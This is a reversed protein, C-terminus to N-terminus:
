QRRKKPHFKKVDSRFTKLTKEDGTEAYRLQIYRHSIMQVQDALDPRALAVRRAFAAPGQAPGRPLGIRALKECFLVYGQQVADKKGTPNKRRWVMFWFGFMGLAGSALLTAFVPGRISGPNLGFRSFFMQQRAYSYGWIWQNWQSNVVDWGFGIKKFYHGLPGFHSFSLFELREDPALAAVMGQEVRAPAVASTPDIRVWGKKPLWVEVWAHADSQRVILYNGFPNWEGGLYGGIIRAPLGATRMLFTFASAYHECYGKRTRFLFDDISDKRLLPPNLTYYFENERFFGLAMAIIKEPDVTSDLWSRTLAVSKPNIGDPLVRTSREWPNFPGTEYTPYSTMRYRIRHNIRRRSTLTHDSRIVGPIQGAGPMDLAFLWKKGHPELTVTYDVPDGGVVPNMRRPVSAGRYWKEGDFDRFVLGRWYLRNPAPIKGHFEARFAIEKSLVVSSISGPSLRDSFGSQAATQRPTGWLSGQIRPFLFFFIITLPLAQLMIKASIRLNPWLRGQPRNIHILVATTFFVSVVLYLTILLTSAYLLNTIVVFYTLFLTMMRDRHSRIEFPKLGMMISLLGVGADLNFSFHYTAMGGVFGLATLMQRVFPTPMRWGYPRSLLQYGWMVSCWATIWLPLRSVHPAIAIILAGVLPVLHTNNPKHSAM